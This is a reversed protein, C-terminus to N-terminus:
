TQSHTTSMPKLHEQPLGPFFAHLRSQQVSDFCALQVRTQPLQAAMSNSALTHLMLPRPIRHWQRDAEKPIPSMSRGWSRFTCPAHEKMALQEWHPTLHGLTTVSILTLQQEGKHFHKLQRSCM